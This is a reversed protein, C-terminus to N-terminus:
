LLGGNNGTLGGSLHTKKEEFPLLFGVSQLKGRLLSSESFPRVVSTSLFCAKGHCLTLWGTVGVRRVKEEEADLPIVVM